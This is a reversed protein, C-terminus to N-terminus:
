GYLLDMSVSVQMHLHTPPPPRPWFPVCSLVLCVLSDTFGYGVRAGKRHSIRYGRHAIRSIRDFRLQFVKSIDNFYRPIRPQLATPVVILRSCTSLISNACNHPYEKKKMIKTIEPYKSCYTCNNKCM